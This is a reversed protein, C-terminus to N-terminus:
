AFKLNKQLFQRHFQLDFQYEAFGTLYVEEHKGWAIELPGGPMKVIQHRLGKNKFKQFEAAAVAGTGCSLTFREVGREFSVAQISNDPLIEVFTVNTGEQGFIQDSRIAKSLVEDPVGETVFHPVGTHILLGKVQNEQFSIARETISQISRPMQVRVLGQQGDIVEAMVSGAQTSFLFRKKEGSTKSFYYLGACRAANGCMQASSGDCNYFDWKADFGGQGEDTLFLVGDTIFGDIGQCIAKVWQSRQNILHHDWSLGSFVFFTNGTGAMRAAHSMQDASKNASIM